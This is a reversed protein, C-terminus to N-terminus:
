IYKHIVTFINGKKTIKDCEVIRARGKGQMSLKDGAAVEESVNKCELWNKTVLGKRIAEQADGRSIGFSDAVASDLRLSALTTRIERIQPKPPILDTLACKTGCASLSSVKEVSAIIHPAIEKLCALVCGDKNPYIDGITDRRIGLGMLTGLYDRHTLTKGSQSLGSVKIRIACIPYEDLQTLLEQPLNEYYDPLFLIVAREAEKSATGTDIRYAVGTKNLIPALLAYRSPDFFGAYTMGKGQAAREARDLANAFRRHTEDDIGRIQDLLKSKNMYCGKKTTKGIM